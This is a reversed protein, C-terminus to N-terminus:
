RGAARRSSSTSGRATSRSGASSEGFPVAFFLFLLPFLIARAVEFGLVAPVALVLLAVFAFQTAANVAVLDAALWVLAVALMAVLVLPRPRPEIAALEERKRWIMWLTLPLVLFCHAFTESRYWIGVMTAATDRYLLGIALLLVALAPLAIRWPTTARLDAPIASM